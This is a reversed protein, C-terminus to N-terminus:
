GAAHLKAQMNSLAFDRIAFAATNALTASALRGDLVPTWACDMPAMACGAIVRATALAEHVPLVNKEGVPACDCGIATADVFLAAM